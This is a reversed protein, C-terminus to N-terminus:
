PQDANVPKRFVVWVGYNVGDAGAPEPTLIRSHDGDLGLAAMIQVMRAKQVDKDYRPGGSTESRMARADAVPMDPALGRGIMAVGGPKLVRLAERFGLEQDGWFQLSGRSVVVDAYNDRFPLAKADAFLAGVRHGVGRRSAQEAFLPMCWGNIDTNIWYMSETRESLALVLDGPGGGIDIGIGARGVLDFERVIYDALPGYVPALGGAAADAMRRASQSTFAEHDPTWLPAADSVMGSRATLASDTPDAPQPASSNAGFAPFPFLMLALFAAPLPISAGTVGCLPIGM